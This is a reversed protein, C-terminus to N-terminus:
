SEHSTEEQKQQVLIAGLILLILGLIRLFNPIHLAGGLFGIADAIVSGVLQGAVLMSFYAAFGIKRPLLISGFVMIMGFIGGTWMWWKTSLLLSMSPLSYIGLWAAAPLMILLLFLGSLFSILAAFISNKSIFRLQGNAVSQLTLVVGTFFSLLVVIFNM